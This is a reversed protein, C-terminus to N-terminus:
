DDSRRRPRISEPIYGGMGSVWDVDAATAKRVTVGAGAHYSGIERRVEREATRLDRAEGLGCGMESNHFYIM